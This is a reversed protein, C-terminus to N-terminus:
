KSWHRLWQPPPRPTLPPVRFIVAFFKGFIPFFLSFILFFRSFLPFYPFLPFIQFTRASQGQCIPRAISSIKDKKGEGWYIKFLGCQKGGLVKGSTVYKSSYEIRMKLRLVQTCFILVNATHNLINFSSKISGKLIDIFPLSIM